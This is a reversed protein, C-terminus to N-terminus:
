LYGKSFHDGIQRYGTTVNHQGLSKNVTGKREGHAPVVPVIENDDKRRFQTRGGNQHVEPVLVGAEVRCPYDDAENNYNDDVGQSCTHCM